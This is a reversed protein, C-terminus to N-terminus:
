LSFTWGEGGSQNERQDNPKDLRIKMFLHRKQSIMNCDILSRAVILPPLQHSPPLPLLLPSVLSHTQPPGETHPAHESIEFSFCSFAYGAFSLWGCLQSWGRTVWEWLVPFAPIAGQVHAPSVPQQSRWAPIFCVGLELIM